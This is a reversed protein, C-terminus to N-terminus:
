LGAQVEQLVATGDEIDRERALARTGESAEESARAHARTVSIEQPAAGGAGM